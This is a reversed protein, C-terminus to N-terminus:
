FPIEAMDVKDEENNSDFVEKIQKNVYTLNIIKNDIDEQTITSKSLLYRPENKIKQLEERQYFVKLPESSSIKKWKYIDNLTAFGKTEIYFYVNKSLYVKFDILYTAVEKGLKLYPYRDNTYEWSHIYKSKKLKDLAKCVEYEFEGQVKIRKYQIWKAFGARPNLEGSAYLNKMTKSKKNRFDIDVNQESFRNSAIKNACDKSCTKKRMSKKNNKVLFSKQCSICKKEIFELGGNEKVYRKHLTKSIKKNKEIKSCEKCGSGKKFAKKTITFWGHKDCKSLYDLKLRPGKICFTSDKKYKNNFIKQFFTEDLNIDEESTTIFKGNIKVRM